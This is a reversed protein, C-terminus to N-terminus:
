FDFTQGVLEESLAWLKEAAAEDLAYSRVGHAMSEDEREAVHCDELYVGGHGELEPATAAFVSTAAGQPTSKVFWNGVQAARQGILARDEEDMHRSLETEIVGPHVAYAHVGKNALRKELAVAFLVNATKSQGYSVWKNYERKEFNPDEFDVPSMHHARSSLAVVRAPAGKLLAPVLLGTMLFHGLHNTGFQMEFGDVTKGEPCAMIGANNILLDLSDHRALFAEAFRRISALSGLELEMVEVDSNGTSERIEAAVAEGRAMDRATITVSAGKAALARATEVGLGATGGTVVARKGTLDIAELVQDTTTEQGFGTRTTDNM